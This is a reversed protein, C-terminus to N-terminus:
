IGFYYGRDLLNEIEELALRTKPYDDAMIRNFLYNSIFMPSVMSDKMMIGAPMGCCLFVDGLHKISEYSFTTILIIKVGKARMWTLLNLVMKQYRPFTYAICVDGEAAGAIEEPYMGGIGDILRINRRIQSLNAAMYHAVGFANRGGLIYVTNASNIMKVARSMNEDDLLAASQKLSEIEAELLDNLLNDRKLLEYNEDYREPLSVKKMLSAQLSQQMQTYGEYELTRSFRIVSTTSVGIDNAIEELTKFAIESAHGSIYDAIKRETKTLDAYKTEIRSIIAMNKGEIMGDASLFWCAGQGRVTYKRRYYTSSIIPTM